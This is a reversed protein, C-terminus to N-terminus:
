SSAQFKSSPVTQAIRRLCVAFAVLYYLFWQYAAADFFSGVCWAGFAAQLGVSLYYNWDYDDRRIADAEIRSLGRVPALLFLIYVVFALVGMESSIQTYANHTVLGSPNTLVFNGMGIGWPNRLTVWISTELLGQRAQSSGVPDLSPIFISLLRLGYNGPALALFVAGSLTALTMTLFRRGRGFKWVLVAGATILGLFGGRSFTVTNAAVFLIALAFYILKLAYNKAALGLALAIPTYMILHLALDNPNGFMGAVDAAARYDEVRLRGSTYNNITNLSLACGIALAAWILGLLRARTRVVNVMIVFMLVVKIFPDNFENWALQHDRAVLITLFGFLTLLLILSIELPRATLNNETALQSPLYILLTAMAIYFAMSSLPALAPLLEYPRFYLWLTFLMLLAYTLAHGRRTIWKESKGRRKDSETEVSFKTITELIENQEIAPLAIQEITTPPHNSSQEAVDSHRKKVFGFNDNPSNKRLGSARKSRGFSHNSKHNFM